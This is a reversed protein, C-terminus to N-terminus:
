VRLCNGSITNRGFYVWVWWFPMFLQDSDLRVQRRQGRYYLLEGLIKWVQPSLVCEGRWEEVVVESTVKEPFSKKVGGSFTEKRQVNKSRLENRWKYKELTLWVTNHNNTNMITRKSFLLGQSCSDSSYFDTYRRCKNIKYM